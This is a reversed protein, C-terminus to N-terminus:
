ALDGAAAARGSMIQRAPPVTISSIHQEHPARGKSRLFQQGRRSVTSRDRDLSIIWVIRMRTGICFPWDSPEHVAELRIRRHLFISLRSSRSVPVFAWSSARSASSSFGVREIFRQVSVDRKYGYPSRRLRSGPPARGAVGRKGSLTAGAPRPSGYPKAEGTRLCGDRLGFGLPAYGTEAQADLFTSEASFDFAKERQM